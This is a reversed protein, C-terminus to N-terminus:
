VRRRKLEALLARLADVVRTVEGHIFRAAVYCLLLEVVVFAVWFGVWFHFYGPHAAVWDAMIAPAAAIM